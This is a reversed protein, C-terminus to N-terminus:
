ALPKPNLWIDKSTFRGHAKVLAMLEERALRKGNHLTVRHGDAFTLIQTHYIMNMASYFSPSMMM